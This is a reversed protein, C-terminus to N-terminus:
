LPKRDPTGFPRYKPENSKEHALHESHQELNSEHILPNIVDKKWDGSGILAFPNAKKKIRLAKSVLGLRSVERDGPTYLKTTINFREIGKLTNETIDESRILCAGIVIKIKTIRGEVGPLGLLRDVGRFLNKVVGDATMAFITSKQTSFLSLHDRLVITRKQTGHADLIIRGDWDEFTRGSFDGRWFKNYDVVHAWLLTGKRLRDLKNLAAVVIPRRFIVAGTPDTANIPNNDVYPYPSFGEGAPDPTYFQGLAPDYQRAHYNYLNVDGDWEQGTYLYRVQEQLSAESSNDAILQGFPMYNFYASPQGERDSVMRTSGLHDKSIFQTEDGQEIAILGSLGYIYTATEGLDTRQGRLVQANVNRYYLIEKEDWTKQLREGGASYLLKTETDGGELKLGQPMSGWPIYDIQSLSPTQSMLGYQYAYSQQETNIFSLQDTGKMYDYVYDTDAQNKKQINGNADYELDKLSWEDKSRENSSAKAETLRSFADYQYEYKNNQPVPSLTGRNLYKIEASVINGDQYQKTKSRYDLNEEFWPNVMQTLQGLTNYRFTHRFGEGLLEQALSGDANYSYEAYDPKNGDCGIRLLSGQLNYDYTVRLDSLGEGGEAKPYKMWMLNGILSFCYGIEYTTPDSVVQYNELYGYDDYTFQEQVKVMQANSDKTKTIKIPYGVETQVDIEPKIDPTTCDYTNQQLM